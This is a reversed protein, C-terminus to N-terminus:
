HAYDWRSASRVYRTASAKLNFLSQDGRWSIALGYHQSPYWYLGVCHSVNHFGISM